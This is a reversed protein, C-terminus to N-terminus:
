RRRRKMAGRRAVPSAQGVLVALEAHERCLSEVDQDRAGLRRLTRLISARLPDGTRGRSLGADRFRARLWDRADWIPKALDMGDLLARRIAAVKSEPLLRFLNVPRVAGKIAGRPPPVGILAWVVASSAPSRRRAVEKALRGLQADTWQVPRVLAARTQWRQLLSQVRPPRLGSASAPMSRTRHDVEISSTVLAWLEATRQDATLSALRARRDRSYVRLLKGLPEQELDALYIRTRTTAPELEAGPKLASAARQNARRKRQTSWDLWSKEIREDAAPKSWAPDNARLWADTEADTWRTKGARDRHLDTM